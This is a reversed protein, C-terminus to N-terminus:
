DDYSDDEQGPTVVDPVDITVDGTSKISLRGGPSFTIITEGGEATIVVREVDYHFNSM